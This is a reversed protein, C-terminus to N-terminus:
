LINSVFLDFSISNKNWEQYINKLNLSSQKLYYDDKLINLIEFTLNNEDINGVYEKVIENNSIMNPLSIFRKKTKIYNNIYYNVFFAKIKKGFTGLFDFWGFVGWIPIHEPKQTPLIVLM